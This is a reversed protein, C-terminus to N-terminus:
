DLSHKIDQMLATQLPIHLQREPESPQHLEADVRGLWAHVPMFNHRTADTLVRTKLM